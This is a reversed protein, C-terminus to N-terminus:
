FRRFTFVYIFLLLPFIYFFFVFLTFQFFNCCCSYTKFIVSLTSLHLSFIRMQTYTRIQEQIIAFTPNKQTNQFIQVRPTKIKLDKNLIKLIFIQCNFYESYRISRLVRIKKNCVCHSLHKCIFLWCFFFELHDRTVYSLNM